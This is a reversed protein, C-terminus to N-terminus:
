KKLGPPMLAALPGAGFEFGGGAAGGGAGGGGGVAGNPGVCAFAFAYAFAYACASAEAKVCITEGSACSQCAFAKAFSCAAAAGFGVGFACAPGCANGSGGGNGGGNGGNGDAAANADPASMAGQDAVNKLMDRLFDDFGPINQRFEEILAEHTTRVSDGFIEDSGESLKQALDAVSSGHDNIVSFTHTTQNKQNVNCASLLLTLGVILVTERM